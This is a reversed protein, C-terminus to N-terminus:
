DNTSPVVPFRLTVSASARHPGTYRATVAYRGPSYFAIFCTAGGARTVRVDHCGRDYPNDATFRVSGSLRGGGRYRVQARFSITDGVQIGYAYQPDEATLRITPTSRRVREAHAPLSVSGVALSAMATASLAGAARAGFRGRRTM